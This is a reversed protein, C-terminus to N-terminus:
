SKSMITRTNFMLLIYSVFYWILMGQSGVRFLYFVWKWIDRATASTIQSESLILIFMGMVVLIGGYIGAPIIMQKASQLNFRDKLQKNVAIMTLAVLVMEAIFLGEMLGIKLLPEVVSGGFGFSGFGFGLFGSGDSFLPIIKFVIQVILNISGIVLAAITLGLSSNKNPFFLLFSYGVIVAIAAGMWLLEATKWINLTTKGVDSSLIAILEVLIKIGIAAGFVCGAIVLVMFGARILGINPGSKRRGRNGRIPAGYPEEYPSDYYEDVYPDEEYDDDRSRRRPADYDEEYDDYFDPPTSSNRCTATSV